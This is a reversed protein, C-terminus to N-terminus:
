SGKSHVENDELLAKVNPYRNKRASNVATKRKKNTINVDANYHLLLKVIYEMEYRAALHLPTDGDFNLLNTDAGM